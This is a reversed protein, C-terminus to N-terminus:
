NGSGAYGMHAKFKGLIQADGHDGAYFATFKENEVPVIMKDM